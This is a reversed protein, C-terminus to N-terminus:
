AQTGGGASQAKPHIEIEARFRDSGFPQELCGEYSARLVRERGSVM